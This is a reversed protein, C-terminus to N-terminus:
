VPKTHTRLSPDGETAPDKPAPPQIRPQIHVDETSNQAHSPLTHCVAVILLIAFFVRASFSEGYRMPGALLAFGAGPPDVAGCVSGWSVKCLRITACDQFLLTVKKAKSLNSVLQSCNDRRRHMENRLAGAELHM